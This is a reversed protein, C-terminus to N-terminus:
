SARVAVCLGFYVANVNITSRNKIYGETTLKFVANPYSSSESVVPFFVESKYTGPVSIRIQPSSPSCTISYIVIGGNNPGIQVASYGTGSFTTTINSMAGLFTRFNDASAKRIFGDGSIFLPLSNSYDSPNSEVGGTMQFYKASCYRNVNLDGNSNFYSKKASDLGDQCNTYFEIDRDSSVIMRENKGEEPDSVALIGEGSGIVTLGYGGIIIGQGDPNGAKFRIMPTNANGIKYNIANHTTFTLTGSMTDGSKSVKTDDTATAWTGDGKLFKSTDTVQPALGNASTSVVNPKNTLDNYNGSFATAELDSLKSAVSTVNGYNPNAIIFDQAIVEGSVTTNSPINTYYKDDVDNYETKIYSSLDINTSGIVEWHPTAVTSIYVYEYYTNTTESSGNPVLYITTGSIDQTPLSQVVKFRLNPAIMTDIVDKTYYYSLDDVAKTIFGSDNNLDSTNTPTKINILTNTSSNASFTGINISNQQILLTGDKIKDTVTKYVSGEGTGNLTDIASKNSTIQTQLNNDADKRESTETSIVDGIPITVETGNDLTLIITKTPSDYRGNVVVSELPLDITQTTGLKTNNNDKLDLTIVYTEPNISMDLHLGNVKTTLEDDQIVYDEGKINLKAVYKTEAM